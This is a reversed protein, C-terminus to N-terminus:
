EKSSRHAYNEKAFLRVLNLARIAAYQINRKRDKGLVLKYTNVKESNGVAIWITGVPKEPTGGSPGAIGSTAVAIDTKLLNIAGIVM